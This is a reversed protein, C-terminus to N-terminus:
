FMRIDSSRRRERSVLNYLLYPVNGRQVPNRPDEALEDVRLPRISVALCRFLRQAFQRKEEDINLLTRGYTEDLTKPLDNLVKRISIPFTRRLRDVQCVM